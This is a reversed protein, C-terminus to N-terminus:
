INYSFAPYSFLLLVATFFIAKWLHKRNKFVISFNTLFYIYSIFLLLLIFLFLITSLPRNFYGIQQFWQQVVYLSPYRTLALGLSIQTFSYSFLGIIALLYIFLVNSSLFKKM